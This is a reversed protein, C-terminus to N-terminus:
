RLKRKRPQAARALRMRKRKPAVKIEDYVDFDDHCLSQIMEVLHQKLERVSSYFVRSNVLPHKGMPEGDYLTWTCRTPQGTLYFKLNM